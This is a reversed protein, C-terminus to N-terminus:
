HTPLFAGGMVLRCAARLVMGDFYLCSYSPVLRYCCWQIVLVTAVNRVHSHASTVAVGVEISGRAQVPKVDHRAIGNKDTM